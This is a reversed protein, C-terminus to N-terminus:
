ASGSAPGILIAIAENFHEFMGLAIEHRVNTRTSGAQLRDPSPNFRRRWRQWCKVSRNIEAEAREAAAAFDALTGAIPWRGCNRAALTMGKQTERLTAESV